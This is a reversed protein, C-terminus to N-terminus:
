ESELYERYLEPYMELAKTFAQEKSLDKGKAIEEAKEELKALPDNADGGTEEGSPVDIDATELREQASKLVTELDNYTDEDFSEKAKMLIGATKDVEAVKDFNQAKKTFEVKFRKQREKEVKENATNIEKEMKELKERVEEPLESKNIDEEEDDKDEIKDELDELRKELDEITSEKDEVIADVAKQIEEDEIKEMLEEYTMVTEGGKVDESRNKIILFKKGTAAKDVASVEEISMDIIKNPM